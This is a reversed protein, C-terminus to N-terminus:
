FNFLWGHLGEDKMGKSSKLLDMLEYPTVGKVPYGLVYEALETCFDRKSSGWNGKLRIKFIRYLLNKLGLFIAGKFDYMTGFKDNFIRLFLQFTDDTDGKEINHTHLLIQKELFKSYPIIRFGSFVSEVIISDFFLISVHSPTEELTVKPPRTVDSILKSVIRNSRVFVLKIM